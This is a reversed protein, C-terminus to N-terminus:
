LLPESGGLFYNGWRFRCRSREVVSYGDLSITLAQLHFDQHDLCVELIFKSPQKGRLRQYLATNVRVVSVLDSPNFHECVKILIEFPLTYLSAAMILILQPLHPPIPTYIHSCITPILHSKETLRSFYYPIGSM